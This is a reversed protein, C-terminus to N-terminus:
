LAGQRRLARPQYFFEQYSLVPVSPWLDRLFLLEGWGPHGCILDPTFGQERLAHAGRACAEARILKTELDVLWPHLGAQNGRAVSYRLYQLGAPLSQSLAEIGLAVLQHGGQAALARAIHIYQGPFGQHVFLLKV